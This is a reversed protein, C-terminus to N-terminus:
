LGGHRSPFRMDHPPLGTMLEDLMENVFNKLLSLHGENDVLHLKVDVLHEALWRGHTVPVNVDAAGHWVSTPVDIKDLDFGWPKSLALEDDIWGDIGFQLGDRNAATLDDGFEGGLAELDAAPTSDDAHMVGQGEDATTTATVNQEEGMLLPAVPKVFSRLAAEGEFVAQWENLNDRDMGDTFALGKSGSPALGAATLVAVAQPLRAACALAHPGGGSWGLLLCQDAALLELVAATDDVVDVVARGIKRSSRAYGPRPFSILRLGRKHAARELAHNPLSGPTGHHFILPVGAAPGSVRVELTRGDGLQFETSHRATHTIEDAAEDAM